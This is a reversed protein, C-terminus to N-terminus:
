KIVHKIKKTKVNWLIEEGVPIVENCISCTNEFKNLLQKWQKKNSNKKNKEIAKAKAAAKNRAKRAAKTEILINGNGDYRVTSYANGSTRVQKIGRVYM